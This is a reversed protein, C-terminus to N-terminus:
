ETTPRCVYLLDISIPTLAKVQQSKRDVWKALKHLPTRYLTPPVIGFGYEEIIEFGTQHFMHRIEARSLQAHVERRGIQRYLLAASRVSQSNGHVNAILVGNKRTLRRRLEKLIQIRMTPETNLLFRFMTVFHFDNALLSSDELINGVVIAAKRAKQRAVQAMFPSIDLGAIFDVQEELSALIRGTGCAFDLLHAPESQPKYRRLIDTLIPQQLEWIYSSYSNPAYEVVEYDEVISQNQFRKSYLEQSVNCEGRQCIV